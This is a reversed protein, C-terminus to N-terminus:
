QESGQDSRAASPVVRLRHEAFSTVNNTESCYRGFGLERKTDDTLTEWQDLISQMEAVTYGLTMFEIPRPQKM